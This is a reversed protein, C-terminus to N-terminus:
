QGPCSKDPPQPTRGRWSLHDVGVCFTAFITQPTTFLGVLVSGQHPWERIVWSLWRTIEQKQHIKLVSVNWDTLHHEKIQEWETNCECNCLIYPTITSYPTMPTALHELKTLAFYQDDKRGSALFYHAATVSTQLIEYYSTTIHM